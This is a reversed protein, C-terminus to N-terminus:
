RKKKRDKQPYYYTKRTFFFEGLKYGTKLKTFYNVYKTPYRACFIYMYFFSRSLTTSSNFFYKNHFKRKIMKDRLSPKTTQM